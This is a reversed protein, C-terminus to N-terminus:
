SETPHKDTTGPAHVMMYRTEFLCVIVHCLIVMISQAYRGPDRQSESQIEIIDIYLNRSVVQCISTSYNGQNEEQHKYRRPVTSPM